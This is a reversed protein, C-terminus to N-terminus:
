DQGRLDLGHGQGWLRCSRLFVRDEASSLLIKRNTLFPGFEHDKKRRRFTWSFKAIKQAFVKKLVNSIECFNQLKKARLGKNPSCKRTADKTRPKPRSWEQEQGRSPRDESLRDKAKAQFKKTNEAELKSDKVRGRSDLDQKYQLQSFM